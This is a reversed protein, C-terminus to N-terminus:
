LVLADLVQVLINGMPKLEDPLGDIQDRLADVSESIAMKSHLLRIGDEVLKRKFRRSKLYMEDLMLM